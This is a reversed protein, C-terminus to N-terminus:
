VTETVVARKVEALLLPSIKEYALREGATQITLATKLRNEEKKSNNIARGGDQIVCILTNQAAFNLCVHSYVEAGPFDPTHTDPKVPSM